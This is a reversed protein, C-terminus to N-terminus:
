QPAWVSEGALIKALYGSFTHMRIPKGILGSFGMSQAKPLEVALDSATVLVVPIRAVESTSKIEHFVDYGSKGNPLMLDLLLLDIPLSEIIKQVTQTGWRDSFCSAGAKELAITMITLNGPNDELIFIRTGKLSTTNTNALM